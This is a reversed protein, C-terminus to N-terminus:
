HIGNIEKLIGKMEEYLNGQPTRENGIPNWVPKRVLFGYLNGQPNRQNGLSEM